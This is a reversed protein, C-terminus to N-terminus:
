QEESRLEYIDSFPYKGVLNYHPLDPSDKLAYWTLDNNDYTRMIIWRAWGAPSATAAKWYKGTGEHIFRKIPLGSSFVIADHSAVSILIYGSQTAAHERLYGSVESVNKGSSGFRADDMTVADSNILGFVSVFVLTGVLATRLATARDVLYGCFIALTPIMLMGYRVNFWSKSIDPVFLVSHGLYLALVNFILPTLLATSALRTTYALKKQTWLLIAGVTGFIVPLVYSTYLLAYMYVRFSLLLNHKTELVGAASMQTQQSYASFPGFIFYLPDKFIALNWLLWIVIGFGGSTAFLLTLGEATRYSFRRWGRYFILASCIILLFWGDYRVLTALFVSFASLLLDFLRGTQYWTILFYCAATMTAMLLLETMATSQLYLINLNVVFVFVGVWRGFSGVSLRKLYLYILVGCIVFSAMSQIAGSLGSHWFFDNWITPIMLFHPLPLWVSGLQAMGPTLGEVVRRGIDLHSRADNYALGMGNSYFVIFCIVSIASLLLILFKLEHRHFYEPINIDIKM